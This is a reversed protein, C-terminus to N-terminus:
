WYSGPFYFSFWFVAVWFLVGFAIAYWYLRKWLPSRLIPEVLGRGEGFVFFSKLRIIGM